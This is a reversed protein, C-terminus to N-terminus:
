RTKELFRVIYKMFEDFDSLRHQLHDYIVSKEIDVYGHVLINRFGAMKVIKNAFQEPLIGNKGLIILIDQYTEPKELDLKSIM